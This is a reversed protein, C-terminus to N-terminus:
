AESVGITGKPLVPLPAFPPLVAGTPWRIATTDSKRIDIISVQNNQNGGLAKFYAKDPTEGVILFVHNGGKRAKVGIAGVRAKCAMGWDAFSRAAPYNKPYPLGAENLCWAVFGGCWAGDADDTKIWPAGLKQWMGIIWQNHKPGPIEREGIKSRGAKLWAPEGAPLAPAMVPQEGPKYTGAIAAMVLDYEGKGIKRGDPDRAARWDRMFASLNFDSM